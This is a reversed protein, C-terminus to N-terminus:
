DGSAWQTSEVIDALDAEREPIRIWEGLVKRKRAAAVNLDIQVVCINSLHRQFINIAKYSALLETNGSFTQFVQHSPWGAGPQLTGPQQRDIEACLSEANQYVANESSDLFSWNRCARIILVYYTNLWKSFPGGTNYCHM